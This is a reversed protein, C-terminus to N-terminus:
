AAACAKPLGGGRTARWSGAPAARASSPLPRLAVAAARVASTPVAHGSTDLKRIPDGASVTGPQIVKANLGRLRLHRHTQGANVFRHADGGFRAHFKACGTHPEATVEIM